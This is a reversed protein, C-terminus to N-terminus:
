RGLRFITTAAFTEGPRLVTSPFEPRNPSDPFHQAEFAVGDGQRYARGSPGRLTGDLVNGSYVQLGPQTTWVELTRGSRPEELRAAFAPEAAGVDDLVLNHDYGRALALQPHPDRLRAGIPMPARFDLPTGDVAALEGTPVLGPGVAAYASAAVTLVHGEVSGSGEGALNWTTHNTLNLVTPADTTARHEIRLETGDLEYVVDVVLTGPFGMEGDPSVYRYAVRAEEAAVTEWVCRDFGEPGGHLCNDGDNRPLEYTTGDLPFRAGGIRNAFRGVTAGFCQGRHAAYEEVTAFGLAVNALRGDRDPALVETVSAGYSSVSVRVGDAGRLAHLEPATM